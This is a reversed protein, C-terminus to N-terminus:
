FLFDTYVGCIRVNMYKALNYIFGIVEDTKDLDYDKEFIILFVGYCTKINPNFKGEQTVHVDLYMPYKQLLMKKLFKQLANEM